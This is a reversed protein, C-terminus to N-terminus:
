LVKVLTKMGKRIAEPSLGAFGLVLGPKVVNGVHFSSLPQVEIGQAAACRAVARDDTGEPLHLTAHFGAEVPGLVARGGLEESAELLADRREHYLARMRRVHAGFHGESLFDALVAQLLTPTHGDMLTRAHVFADVLDEPAVLYALRLGPFLAKTFTGVYLVRGGSDLGQIAALPRGTYRFESDYDDEVIWSGAREAWALLALRRELSLTVGIPYQHSPTVYALRAGPALAEGRAVDLGNEDVPVPVIRAGAATLASRAGLYGPEEMWVEDGPDVLLRAALDLAQQSSTLVIVQRPSCTVGRATGLYSVIAERLPGYGAPDGYGLLERGSRRLRRTLLRSWVEFPFADLAPLGAAFPRPVTPEVCASAAAITQGRRSLARGGPASGRGTRPPAPRAPSDPLAVYSGDGVRRVLYGEAELQSFAEEATNRSVGLDAALTRTSPLRSGLPLVGGLVAGRIRRYIQLHLPAGAEFPGELNPLLAGAPQKM